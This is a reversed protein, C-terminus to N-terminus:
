IKEIKNKIVDLLQQQSPALKGTDVSNLIALADSRNARTIGLTSTPSKKQAPASSTSGSPELWRSPTALKHAANAGANWSNKISDIPGESILEIFRM